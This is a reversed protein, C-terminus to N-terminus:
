IIEAKNLPQNLIPNLQVTNVTYVTRSSEFVSRSSCITSTTEFLQVHSLSFYLATTIWWEIVVENEVAELFYFYVMDWKIHVSYMKPSSYISEGKWWCTGPGDGWVWPADQGPWSQLEGIKVQLVDFHTSLFNIQPYLLAAFMRFGGRGRWVELWIEKTM